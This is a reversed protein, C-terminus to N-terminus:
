RATVESLVGDVIVFQRDAMRAIRSDHTIIVLTKGMKKWLCYQYLGRISLVQAQFLLSIRVSKLFYDRKQGVFEHVRIVSEQYSFAFHDELCFQVFQCKM